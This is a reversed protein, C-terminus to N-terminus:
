KTIVHDKVQITGNLRNAILEAESFNDMVKLIKAEGLIQPKKELIRKTSPDILNKGERFLIYKTFDKINKEKGLNVLIDKGEKEIIIGEVLPFSNKFKLALGDILSALDRSEGVGYVDQTDLIVGTETDILRAVVEVFGGREYVSGALVSEAAVLRGLEIPSFSASDLGEQDFKPMLRDVRERDVVWFRKQNVLSDILLDAIFRQNTSNEGRYKFPIVAVSMRSGIELVPNITREITLVKVQENGAPDIAKITISNKGPQLELMHNFYVRKGEHFLISEGNVSLDQVGGADQVQGCIFIAEWDVVLNDKPPDDIVLTPPHTDNAQSLGAIQLSAIKIPNPLSTKLGQYDLIRILGSVQNGLTDEAIFFPDEMPEQLNYTLSFAGGGGLPLLNMGAIQFIKIDLLDELYGTIKIEKGNVTGPEGSKVKVENIYLLPAQRDAILSLTQKTEQGVLDRAVIHITNQGQVLPVAMSFRVKPQALEIPYPQNNIMVRGVFWDDQIEGEITTSFGAIYQHDQHSSLFIVPPNIDKQTKQLYAQRALNLYYKAKASPYSSVSFSLEQIAKEYDAKTYYIIGMERHPFYDDLIHLGYTRIRRYDENKLTSAKLLDDLALDWFQGEAYSLGRLYYDWFNGGWIGEIRGFEKGDKVLIPGSKVACGILLALLLTVIMTRLKKHILLFITHRAM